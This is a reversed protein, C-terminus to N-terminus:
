IPLQLNSQMYYLVCYTFIIGIAGIMIVYLDVIFLIYMISYDNIFPELSCKRDHLTRYEYVDHITTYPEIKALIALTHNNGVYTILDCECFSDGDNVCIPTSTTYISNNKNITSYYLPTADYTPIYSNHKYYVAYGLIGGIIGYVFLAFAFYQITKVITKSIM